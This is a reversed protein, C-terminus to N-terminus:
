PAIPAVDRDGGDPPTMPPVLLAPDVRRDRWSMRWDLHPGTARGTAGVAGIVEFLKSWNRGGLVTGNLNRNKPDAAERHHTHYGHIDVFM